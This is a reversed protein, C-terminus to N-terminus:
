IVSIYRVGHKQQMIRGHGTYAPVMQYPDKLEMPAIALIHQISSTVMQYPGKLQEPLVFVDANM